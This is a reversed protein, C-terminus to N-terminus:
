STSDPLSKTPCEDVTMETALLDGGDKAPSPVLRKFAEAPTEVTDWDLSM